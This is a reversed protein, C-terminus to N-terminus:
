PPQQLGGYVPFRAKPTYDIMPLLEQVQERTLLEADIGNLRMANGRRAFADMQADSHAVNIISRQSFMVNYNLEQAMEEWLKM